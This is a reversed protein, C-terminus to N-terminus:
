CDTHDGPPPDDFPRGQTAADMRRRNWDRWEAHREARGEVRGEDKHAEIVPTVFRNVLTAYLTM